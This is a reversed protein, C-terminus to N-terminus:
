PFFFRKGSKPPYIQFHCWSNEGNETAELDEMWLGWEELREENQKIWKALLRFPDAIDAAAGRLHMSKLPVKLESEGSKKRKYNIENYIRLHDEMSRYGSTVIMPRSYLQRVLNLKYHLQQLNFQHDPEISVWPTSGILERLWIM